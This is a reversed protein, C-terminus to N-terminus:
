AADRTRSQKLIWGEVEDSRWRNARPGIKLPAPFRFKTIMHYITARSLAVAKSVEGVKMLRYNLHEM